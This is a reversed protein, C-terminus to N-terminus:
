RRRAPITSVVKDSYASCRTPGFSDCTTGTVVPSIVSRARSSRRASASPASCSPMVIRRSFRLSALEALMRKDFTVKATKDWLELQMSPDLGAEFARLQAAASQRRSIEDSLVMLLLEEFSLDQKEALVLREPLTDVIRGLRLQKLASVLDPKIRTSTTSM